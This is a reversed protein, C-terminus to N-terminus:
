FFFLFSFLFLFFFHHLSSQSHSTFLWTYYQQSLTWAFITLPQFRFGVTVALTSWRRTRWSFCVTSVDVPFRDSVTLSTAVLREGSPRAMTATVKEDVTESCFFGSANRLVSWYSAIWTQHVALNKWWTNIWKNPMYSDLMSWLSCDIPNKNGRRYVWSSNSSSCLSGAGVSAISSDKPKRNQDFTKEHLSWRNHHSQHNHNISNRFM